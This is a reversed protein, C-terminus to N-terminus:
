SRPPAASIKGLASRSAHDEALDGLSIVGVPKGGDDAVPLRRVAKEKMLEIARDPADSMSLTVLDGGCANECTTKGPDKGEALVRVVIDRDTLIGTLKGKTDTLLANGVNSHRMRQAADLVSTTFELTVLDKSMLEALSTTM